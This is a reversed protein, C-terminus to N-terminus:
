RWILNGAREVVYRNENAILGASTVTTEDGDGVGLSGRNLEVPEIPLQVVIRDGCLSERTGVELEAVVEPPLDM